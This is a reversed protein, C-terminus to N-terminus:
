AHASVNIHEKDLELAVCEDGARVAAGESVLWRAVVIAEYSRLTEPAQIPIVDGVASAHPTVPTRARTPRPIGAHYVLHIIIDSALPATPCGEAATPPM